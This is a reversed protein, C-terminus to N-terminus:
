TLRHRIAASDIHTRIASCRVCTHAFPWDGSIDVTITHNVKLVQGYEAVFPEGGKGPGFLGGKETAHPLCAFFYDIAFARNGHLQHSVRASIEVAVPPHIKGVICNQGILPRSSWTNWRGVDRREGIAVLHNVEKAKGDKGFM